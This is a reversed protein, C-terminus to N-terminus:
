SLGPGLNRRRKNFSGNSGAVVALCANQRDAYYSYDKVLGRIRYWRWTHMRLDDSDLSYDLLRGLERWEDASPIDTSMGIIDITSPLGAKLLRKLHELFLWVQPCKDQFEHIKVGYVEFTDKMLSVLVTRHASSTMQLTEATTHVFGRKTTM